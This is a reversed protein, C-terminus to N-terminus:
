PSMVTSGPWAASRMRLTTSDTSIRSSAFAPQVWSQLWPLGDEVGVAPCARGQERQQNAATALKVLVGAGVGQQPAQRDHGRHHDDTRQHQEEQRQVFDFAGIVVDAGGPLVCIGGQHAKALLLTRSFHEFGRLAAVGAWRRAQAKFGNRTFAHGACLGAVDVPEFFGLLDFHLGADGGHAKQGTARWADVGLGRARHPVGLPFAGVV